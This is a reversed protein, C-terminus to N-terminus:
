FNNFIKSEANCGGCHGWSLNKTSLIFGFNIKKDSLSLHCVLYMLTEKDYLFAAETKKLPALWLLYNLYVPM